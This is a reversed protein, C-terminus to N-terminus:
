YLLTTAGGNGGFHWTFDEPRMEAAAGGRRRMAKRETAGVELVTNRAGKNVSEM